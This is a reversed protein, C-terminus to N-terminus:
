SHVPSRPVGMMSVLKALWVADSEDHRGIGVGDMIVLLLPGQRGSFNKLKELKLAM